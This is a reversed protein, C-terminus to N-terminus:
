KAKKKERKENKKSGKDIEIIEKRDKDIEERKGEDRSGEM